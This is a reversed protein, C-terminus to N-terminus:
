PTDKRNLRTQIRVEQRDALKLFLVKPITIKHDTLMVEWKAEVYIHDPGEFIRGQITRSTTVGHLSFSGVAIVSQTDKRAPNYGNLIGTFEAFPYKKTELYSERMHEDRLNIGTRLTNLDIYFDLKKLELDLLGKLDNSTGTFTEISTKSIFEVKGQDASFIQADLSNPSVIFTTIVLLLVLATNNIMIGQM